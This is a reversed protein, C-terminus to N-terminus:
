AFDMKATGADKFLKSSSFIFFYRQITGNTRRNLKVM